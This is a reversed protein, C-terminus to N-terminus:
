VSPPAGVFVRAWRRKGVQIEHEPGPLAADATWKEGDVRVSGQEEIQRRADRKSSVLGTELLADSLTIGGRLSHEALETPTQRDKFVRDFESEAAVGSGAGHYLDVVARALRRKAANPHEAGSALAAGAAEIQEPPWATAYRFYMPLVDDPISMLKGFQDAPADRVGVYNGLSKSM